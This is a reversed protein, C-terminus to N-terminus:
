RDLVAAAASETEDSLWGAALPDRELAERM